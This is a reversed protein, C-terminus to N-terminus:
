QVVILVLPFPNWRRRSRGTEDFHHGEGSRSVQHGLAGGAGLIQQILTGFSLVSAEVAVVLRRWDNSRRRCGNGSRIGIRVTAESRHDPCVRQRQLTLRDSGNGGCRGGGAFRRGGGSRRHVSRLQLWSDCVEQLFALAEGGSRWLGGGGLLGTM